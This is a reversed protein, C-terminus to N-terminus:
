GPAQSLPSPSLARDPFSPAIARYTLGEDRVTKVTGDSAPTNAPKSDQPEQSPVKKQDGSLGLREMAANCVETLIETEGFEALEAATVVPQDEVSYGDVREVCALTVQELFELGKGVQAEGAKEGLGAASIMLHRAKRASVKAWHITVPSPDDRNGDHEPIFTTNRKVSRSM